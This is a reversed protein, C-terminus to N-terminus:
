PAAKAVFDKIAERKARDVIIDCGQSEIEAKAEGLSSFLGCYVGGPLTVRYFGERDSLRRFKTPTWKRKATVVANCKLKVVAKANARERNDRQRAKMAKAKMAKAKMVKM